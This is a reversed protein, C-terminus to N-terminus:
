KREPIVAREIDTASVGCWQAYEIFWRLAVEPSPKEFYRVVDGYQAPVEFLAHNYVPCDNWQSVVRGDVSVVGCHQWTTGTFYMALCGVSPEELEVLRKEIAWEMFHRGAFLEPWFYVRIAEYTPNKWLGLSYPACTSLEPLEIYVISHSHAKAVEEVM